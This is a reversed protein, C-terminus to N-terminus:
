SVFCDVGQNPIAKVEYDHMTNQVYKIIICSIDDDDADNNNIHIFPNLDCQLLFHQRHMSHRQM